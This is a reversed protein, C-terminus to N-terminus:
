DEIVKSVVLFGNHAQPFNGKIIDQEKQSSLLPEDPRLQTVCVADQLVAENSTQNNSNNHEKANRIIDLLKGVETSPKAGQISSLVDVTMMKSM